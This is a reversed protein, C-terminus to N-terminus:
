TLLVDLYPRMLNDVRDIRAFRMLEPPDFRREGWAQKLAQLAVDLGVVNRFKFCDAVTKAVSYVKLDVGNLRHVEIGETYASGSFSFYRLQLHEFKPHHHKPPLAVWADPSFELTLDHFRLASILCIVGDPVRKAVELLSIHESFPTEPCAYLGRDLRMLLGEQELQRLYQTPLGLKKLDRPRIIGHTRTLRLIRKAM